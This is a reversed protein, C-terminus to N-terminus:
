LYRIRYQTHLSLKERQPWLQWWLILSLLLIWERGWEAGPETCTLGFCLRIWLYTCSASIHCNNPPHVRVWYDPQMFVIQVTLFLVQEAQPKWSVWIASKKGGGWKPQGSTQLICCLHAGLQRQCEPMQLRLGTGSCESVQCPGRVGTGSQNRCLCKKWESLHVSWLSSM